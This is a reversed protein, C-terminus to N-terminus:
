GALSNNTPVLIEGKGSVARDGRRSSFGDTAIKDILQRVGSMADAAAIRRDHHFRILCPFVSRILNAKSFREDPLEPFSAAIVTGRRMGIAAGQGIGGAVVITGAFMQSALFDIANGNILIEGRRMRHGVYNGASGGLTICGGKIGQRQSGCPAGLYDGADGDIALRGGTMSTGAYDGVSGKVCIRGSHHCAGIRDFCRLDGEIVLENREGAEHQVDFLDGLRVKQRGVILPTQEVDTVSKDFWDALRISSADVRQDVHERLTLLWKSM